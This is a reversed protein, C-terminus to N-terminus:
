PAAGFANSLHVRARGGGASTHVVNRISYGPYGGPTNAGAAAPAAAWTGVWGGVAHQALVPVASEPNASGSSGRDPQASGSSTLFGIGALVAASVAVFRRM